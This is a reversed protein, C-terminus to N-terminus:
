IRTATLDARRRRACSYVFVTPQFRRGNSRSGGCEPQGVRVGLERPLGAKPKERLAAQRDAEPKFKRPLKRRSACGMSDRKM